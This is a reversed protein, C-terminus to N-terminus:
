TVRSDVSVGGGPLNGARACNDVNFQAVAFCASIGLFSIFKEGDLPFDAAQSLHTLPLTVQTRRSSM